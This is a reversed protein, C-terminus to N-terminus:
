RTSAPGGSVFVITERRALPTKRDNRWLEAALVYRGPPV